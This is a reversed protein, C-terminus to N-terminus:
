KKKRKFSKKVKNLFGKKKEKKKEKDQKDLKEKYESNNKYNYSKVMTLLKEVAPNYVKELYKDRDEKIAQAVKIIDQIEKSPIYSVLPGHSLKVSLTKEDVWILHDKKKQEFM